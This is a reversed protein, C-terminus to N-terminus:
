SQDEVNARNAMLDAFTADQHEREKRERQAREDVYDGAIAGVATSVTALTAYIQGVTLLAWYDSPLPTEISPHQKRYESMLDGAAEVAELSQLAATIRIDKFSM